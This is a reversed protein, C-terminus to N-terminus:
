IDFRGPEIIVIPVAPKVRHQQKQEIFVFLHLQVMEEINQKGGTYENGEVREEVM